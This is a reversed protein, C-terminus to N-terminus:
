EFGERKSAVGIGRESPYGLEDLPMRAQERPEVGVTPPTETQQEACRGRQAREERTAGATQACQERSGPAHDISVRGASLHQQRNAGIGFRHQGRGGGLGFGAPDLKAGAVTFKEGFEHQVVEDRSQATVGEFHEFLHSGRERM